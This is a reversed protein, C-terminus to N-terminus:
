GGRTRPHARACECRPCQPPPTDARRSGPRSSCRPSRAARRASRGPRRSSPARSGPAPPRVSRRRRRPPEQPSASFYPSLLGPRKQVSKAGTATSARQIAQSQDNKQSELKCLLRVPTVLVGELRHQKRGKLKCLLHVPTVLCLSHGCAKCSSSAFSQSPCLAVSKPNYM